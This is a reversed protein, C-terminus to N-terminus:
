IQFTLNKDESIRRKSQNNQATWEASKQATRSFYIKGVIRVREIPRRHKGLFRRLHGVICTDPGCANQATASGSTPSQAMPATRLLRMSSVFKPERVALSEAVPRDDILIRTNSTKKTV